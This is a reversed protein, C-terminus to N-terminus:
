GESHGPPEPLRDPSRAAGAKPDAKRKRVSWIQWAGWLLAVVDFFLFGIFFPTNPRM